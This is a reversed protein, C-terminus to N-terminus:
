RRIYGRGAFGIPTKQAVPIHATASGVQVPAVPRVQKTQRQAVITQAEEKTIGVKREIVNGAINKHYKAPAVPRMRRRSFGQHDSKFPSEQIANKYANM